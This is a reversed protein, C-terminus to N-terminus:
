SRRRTATIAKRPRPALLAQLAREVLATVTTGERAAKVKLRRHLDLPRYHTLIRDSM